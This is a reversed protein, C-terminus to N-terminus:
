VLLTKSTACTTFNGYCVNTIVIIKLTSVQSFNLIKRLMIGPDILHFQKAMGTYTPWACGKRCLCQDHQVIMQKHIEVVM